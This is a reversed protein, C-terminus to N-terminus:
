RAKVQALYADVATNLDDGFRESYSHFAEGLVQPTSQDLYERYLSSLTSEDARRNVKWFARGRAVVWETLEETAVPTLREHAPGQRPGMTNECILNRAVVVHGAFAVLDDRSLADIASRLAERDPFTQEILDWFRDQVVDRAFSM